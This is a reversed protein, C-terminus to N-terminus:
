FKTISIRTLAPLSQACSSFPVVSSSIDPHCWWSSPCSNSHVGPTPSPCPPRAHQSEPTGFLRVHSLSQVSSLQVAFSAVSLFNIELIYLWTLILFVFLWTLFHASSGLLCKELSSMCIATLCMKFISVDSMTLFICILVIVLLKSRMGILIAM